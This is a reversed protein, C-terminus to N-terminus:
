ATARHFEAEDATELDCLLQRADELRHRAVGFAHDDEAQARVAERELQAVAAVLLAHLLDASIDLSARRASGVTRVYVKAM